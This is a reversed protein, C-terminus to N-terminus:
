IIKNLKVFNCNSLCKVVLEIKIKNVKNLIM